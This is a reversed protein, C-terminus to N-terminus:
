WDGKHNTGGALPLFLLLRGEQKAKAQAVKFPHVWRIGTRDRDLPHTATPKGAAAPKATDKQCPGAVPLLLLTAASALALSRTDM